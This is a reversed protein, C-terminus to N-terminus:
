FLLAIQLKDSKEFFKTLPFNHVWLQGSIIKTATTMNSLYNAASLDLEFLPKM